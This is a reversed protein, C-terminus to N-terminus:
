PRGRAAAANQAAIGLARAGRVVDEVTLGEWTRVFLVRASKLPSWLVPLRFPVERLADELVERGPLPAIVFGEGPRVGLMPDGHANLPQCPPALVSGARASFDRLTDAAAQGAEPDEFLSRESLPRVQERSLADIRAPDDCPAGEFLGGAPWAGELLRDAWVRDEAVERCSAVWRALVEPPLLLGHLLMGAGVLPQLDDRRAEAAPTLGLGVLSQRARDRAELLGRRVVRLREVAGELTLLAGRLARQRRLRLQAEAQGGKAGQGGQILWDSLLQRRRELARKVGRRTLHGVLRTGGVAALLALAGGALWPALERWDIGTPASTSAAAGTPSLVLRAPGTGPTTGASAPPAQFALVAAVTALLVAVAVALATGMTVRRSPLEKLATELGDGEFPTPEEAGQGADERTRAQAERAQMDRLQAIVQELGHTVHPLQALGSSPGLWAGFVAHVGQEAAAAVEYEAGDLQRFLEERRADNVRTAPPPTERRFLMPYRLRLDDEGDFPGVQVAPPVETPLRSLAAAERRCLKAAEGENLPALWRDHQLAAVAGQALAPDVKVQEMRTVLTGLGDYAARAAAYDTVRSEPVEASVVSVFGVSGEGRAPHALRRAVADETRLGSGVLAMAFAACSAVMEGSSLTGASTQQSVLWMRSLLSSASRSRAWGEVAALRELAVSARPHSLAPVQVVLHLGAARQEPPRDPPFIAGYGEAVLRAAQECATLLDEDGGQLAGAFVLVDLRPDRREGDGRGARLLEELLPQLGAGVGGAECRLVGLLPASGDLSHLVRDVVEHGFKGLGVLVTPYVVAASL